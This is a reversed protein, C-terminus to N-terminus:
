QWLIENQTEPYVHIKPSVDNLEHCPAMIRGAVSRLSAGLNLTIKNLDDWGQPEVGGVSSNSPFGLLSM